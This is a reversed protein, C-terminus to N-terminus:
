KHEQKFKHEAPTQTIQKNKVRFIILQGPQLLVANTDTNEVGEM